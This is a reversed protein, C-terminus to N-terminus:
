PRGYRGMLGARAIAREEVESLLQHRSAGQPLELQEDLAYLRFFYSTLEFTV